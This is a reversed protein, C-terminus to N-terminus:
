EKFSFVTIHVLCMGDTGSTQNKPRSLRAQASEVALLRGLNKMIESIM